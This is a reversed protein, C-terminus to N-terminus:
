PGCQGMSCTGGTVTITVKSRKANSYFAVFQVGDKGSAPYSDQVYNPLNFYIEVKNCDAALAVNMLSSAAIIATTGLVARDMDRNLITAAGAAGTWLALPSCWSSASSAYKNSVGSDVVIRDSFYSVAANGGSVVTVSYDRAGPYPGPMVVADSPIEFYLRDRNTLLQNIVGNTQLSLTQSSCDSM